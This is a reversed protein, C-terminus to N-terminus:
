SHGFKCGDKRLREIWIPACMVNSPTRAEKSSHASRSFTEISLLQDLPFACTEHSGEDPM